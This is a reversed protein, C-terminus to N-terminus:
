CLVRRNQHTHLDGVGGFELPFIYFYPYKNPKLASTALPFYGPNMKNYATTDTANWLIPGSLLIWPALIPGMQPRCSGPPGWIPGIFKAIQHGKHLFLICDHGITIVLKRVFVWLLCWMNWGHPYIIPNIDYDSRIQVIHVPTQKWELLHLKNTIQTKVNTSKVWQPRTICIHTLSIVMMPESLPKNAPRRWAM